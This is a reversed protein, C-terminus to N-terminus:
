DVVGRQNARIPVAVRLYCKLKTTVVALAQFHRLAPSVCGALNLWIREVFPASPLDPKVKTGGWLPGVAERGLGAM